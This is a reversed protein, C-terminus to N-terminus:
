DSRAKVFSLIMDLLLVHIAQDPVFQPHNGPERRDCWAVCRIKAEKSMGASTDTGQPRDNTEPVDKSM